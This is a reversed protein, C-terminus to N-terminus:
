AVKIVNLICDGPLDVYGYFPLGLGKSRFNVTISCDPRVGLLIEKKEDIYEFGMEAAQAYDKANITVLGVTFSYEDPMLMLDMTQRFRLYTGKQVFSPADILFQLSTKGHVNINLNNTLRIGGIPVEIDQLLEFEYFFCVKDGIQFTSCQEGKDNCLAIGTCRAIDKDGIILANSLDLFAHDDPWDPIPNSEFFPIDRDKIQTNKESSLPSRAKSKGTAEMQYYNMVAKNSEGQFLCKGKDLLLVETCYKEILPMNHSVIIVATNNVILEEIRDHCKQQFFIDGVSLVEDVILIDPDLCAQVAFALRVYMGSSYFKVPQDIFDGIDAFAAIRDFREDTEKQSFGLIASNIYVNERGTFDPNFGSGLELMAAIRGNTHIQGATQTLTGAIIQLLTSKGSGNQGIIGFVEGKKINFTINQLAWFKQYFTKHETKLFDPLFNWLAHKLRNRPSAFLPYMKSVNNVSVAIDTEARANGSLKRNDFLM